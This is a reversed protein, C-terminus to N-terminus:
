LQGLYVETEGKMELHDSKRFRNYIDRAQKKFNLYVSTGEDPAYSATSIAGLFDEWSLISTFPYTKKHYGKGTFYFEHHARKGIMAAESDCNTPYIKQLAEGLDLDTGYNRLIALWGGPKLIRQFERWATYPEFWHVAQAATLLDISDDPLALAEARSSIIHCKAGGIFSADRLLNKRAFAAMELNPEIAYIQQALVIFNRTLIGTGAGIDAIVSNTSIGTTILIFRIAEPAYSWRYRHYKEAKSSYVTIPDL